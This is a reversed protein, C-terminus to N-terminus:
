ILKPSPNYLSLYDAFLHCLTVYVRFYTDTTNESAVSHRPIHVRVDLDIIEGSEPTGGRKSTADSEDYNRSQLRWACGREFACINRRM